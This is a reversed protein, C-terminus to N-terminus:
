PFVRPNYNVQKIYKYNDEISVISISANTVKFKFFYEPNDFVWSFILRIVGAHTVLLVDEDKNVIEELFDKVRRYNGMLSDGQPITYNYPDRDWMKTEEPFLEVIEKYNKGSFVGFDFERIRWDGIGELGLYDLTQQTRRLPSYYVKEYSFDKLNERALRVQEIGKQSLQTDDSGYIEKVNDESEGHRIM